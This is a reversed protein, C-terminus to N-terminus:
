IVRERPCAISECYPMLESGSTRLVVMWVSSIRRMAESPSQFSSVDDSIEAIASSHLIAPNEGCFNQLMSRRRASTTDLSFPTSDSLMVM